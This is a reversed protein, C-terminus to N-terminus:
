TNDQPVSTNPIAKDQPVTTTAPVTQRGEVETETDTEEADKPKLEEQSTSM